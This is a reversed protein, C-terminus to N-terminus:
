LAEWKALDGSGEPGTYMQWDTSQQLAQQKQQLLTAVAQNSDNVIAATGTVTPQMVGNILGIVSPFLFIAMGIVFPRVLAKFEVHQAAMIKGWVHEAIYWLAGFGAISSSIGILESCHVIMADYVQQLTAQLGSIDILYVM